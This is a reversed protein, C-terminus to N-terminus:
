DVDLLRVLGTWPPEGDVAALLGPTQMAGIESVRPALPPPLARAISWRVELAGAIGLAKLHAGFPALRAGLDAADHVAVNRWGPSLRLPADGEYTVAWGDGEFLEGRTMGVGRWQVQQAGVHVPLPGRPLTRALGALARESLVRALEAAPIKAGPEVLVFHPSLCGRQDYLAVDLAIRDAVQALSAETALADAPVYIAGLGHGHAVFSTTAPLAARIEAISRDSGWAHLVDCRSSMAALMASEQRAFRLLAISDGLEPDAEGLAIAFLESLGEDTSSPKVLVPVRSLLAWALPRLSASLVNGALVMGALRAPSTTRGHHARDFATIAARLRDEHLEALSSTLALEVNEDSLGSRTPLVDRAERGLKSTPDALRAAASAIARVVRDVDAARLAAGADLARDIVRDISTAPDIAILDPDRAAGSSM